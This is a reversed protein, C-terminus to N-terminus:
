EGGRGVRRLAVRIASRLRADNPLAARAREAMAVTGDPDDREAQEALREMWAARVMDELERRPRWLARLAGLGDTYSSGRETDIVRPALNTVVSILAAVSVSQAAIVGVADTRTLMADFGVVLALLLVLLLEALPGALYVLASKLRVGRLDLAAPSVFGGLPYMKIACPVGFLEFTFAVGGFGVVIVDVEWGVLRAMAAHGLEHLAILPFWALMMFVPALRAPEYDELVIAVLAVLLLAFAGLLVWRENGRAERHPAPDYHPM